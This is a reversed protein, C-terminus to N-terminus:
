FGRAIRSECRVINIHMLLHTYLAERTTLVYLTGGRDRAPAGPELINSSLVRTCLAAIDFIADGSLHM